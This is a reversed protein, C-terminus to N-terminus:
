AITIKTIIKIIQVDLWLLIQKVDVSVNYQGKIYSKFM